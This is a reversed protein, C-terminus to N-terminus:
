YFALEGSLVDDGVRTMWSRRPSSRMLALDRTHVANSEGLLAKPTGSSSASGAHRRAAANRTLKWPRVRLAYQFSMLAQYPQHASLPM